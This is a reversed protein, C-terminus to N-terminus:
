NGDRQQTVKSVGSYISLRVSPSIGMTIGVLMAV